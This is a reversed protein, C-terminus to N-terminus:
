YIFISIGYYLGPHMSLYAKGEGELGDDNMVSDRLNYADDVTARPRTSYSKRTAEDIIILLAEKGVFLVIPIHMMVILLFVIDITIPLWGDMFSVSKLVNGELETGFKLLAVISVIIYVVVCFTFSYATARVGNSDTKVKLSQYVPFFASQFGYSIFLTPVNALMNIDFKPKSIEAFSFNDTGETILLVTM